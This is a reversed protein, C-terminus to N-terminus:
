QNANHDRNARQYGPGPALRLTFFLTIGCDIGVAFRRCWFRSTLWYCSRAFCLQDEVAFGIQRRDREVFLNVRDNVPLAPCGSRGSLRVPLERDEPLVPYHSGAGFIERDRQPRLNRLIPFH